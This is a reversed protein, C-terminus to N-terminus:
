QLPHPADAYRSAVQAPGREDDPRGLRHDVLHHRREDLLHPVGIGLEDAALRHDGLRDLQGRNPLEGYWLLHCVEEFTANEALDEIRYGGYVLTGEDGAVQSIATEGIVVGELGRSTNSM